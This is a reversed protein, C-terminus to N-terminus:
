GVCDDGKDGDWDVVYFNWIPVADEPDDSPECDEVFTCMGDPFTCAAGTGLICLVCPLTGLTVCPVSCVLLIIIGCIDFAEVDWVETCDIVHGVIAAKIPNNCWGPDGPGAPVWKDYGLPIIEVYGECGYWFSSCEPCTEGSPPIFVTTYCNDCVCECDDCHEWSECNDDVNACGCNECNCCGSCTKGECGCDATCQCYCDVCSECTPCGSWRDGYPVCEYGERYHCDPCDPPPCAIAPASLRFLLLFILFLASYKTTM